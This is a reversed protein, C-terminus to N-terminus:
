DAPVLQIRKFENDGAPLVVSAGTKSHLITLTHPSQGRRELILNLQILEDDRYQETYRANVANHSLDLWEWTSGVRVFGLSEEVSSPDPPLPPAPAVNAAPAAAPAVRFAEPFKRDDPLPPVSRRVSTSEEWSGNENLTQLRGALRPIRITHGTTENLIHISSLDRGTEQYTATKGAKEQLTWAQGRRFLRQGTTAEYVEAPAPLPPKVPASVTDPHEFNLRKHGDLLQIGNPELPEWHGKKNKTLWM